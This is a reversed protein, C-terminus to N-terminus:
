VKSGYCIILRRSVVFMVSCDVVLRSSRFSVDRKTACDVIMRIPNGVYKRDDDDSVTGIGVEAADVSLKEM